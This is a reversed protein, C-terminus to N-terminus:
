IPHFGWFIGNYSFGPSQSLSCYWFNQFLASWSITSKSQTAKRNVTNDRNLLHKRQSLWYVFQSIRLYEETFIDRELNIWANLWLIVETKNTKWFSVRRPKILGEELQTLRIHDSNRKKWYKQWFNCKILHQWLSCLNYVALTITERRHLLVINIFYCHFM